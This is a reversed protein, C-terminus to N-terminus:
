IAIEIEQGQEKDIIKVVNKVLENILLSHASYMIFGVKSM